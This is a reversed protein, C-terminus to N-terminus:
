RAASVKLRCWRTSRKAHSTYSSWGLRHQASTCKGLMRVKVECRSNIDIMCKHRRACIRRRRRSPQVQSYTATVMGSGCPYVRDVSGFRRRGSVQVRIHTNKCYGKSNSGSNHCGVNKQYQTCSKCPKCSRKPNWTSSYRGPQCSARSQPERLYQRSPCACQGKQTSSAGVRKQRRRCNAHLQCKSM